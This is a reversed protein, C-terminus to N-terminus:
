TGDSVSYSCFIGEFKVRSCHGSKWKLGIERVTEILVM